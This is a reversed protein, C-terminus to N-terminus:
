VSALKAARGGRRKHEVLVATRMGLAAQRAPCTVGAQAGRVGIRRRQTLLLVVRMHEIM